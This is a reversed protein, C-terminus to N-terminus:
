QALIPISGCHEAIVERVEFQIQGYSYHAQNELLCLRLFSDVQIQHYPPKPTQSSMQLTFDLLEPFDYQDILWSM